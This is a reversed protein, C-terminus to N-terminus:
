KEDAFEYRMLELVEAIRNDRTIGTLHLRGRWKDAITTDDIQIMLIRRPRGFENQLELATDREWNCYPSSASEKSWLSLFTDSKAIEEKLRPKIKDHVGLHSEDRRVLRGTRALLLEIHDAEEVNEHAYSLFYTHVGSLAEGFDVIHAATPHAADSGALEMLKNRVRPNNFYLTEYKNKYLDAASGAFSPVTVVPKALALAYEGCRATGRRGGLLITFDSALIAGIRPALRADPLLSNEGQELYPVQKVRIHEDNQFPDGGALTRHVEIRLQSGRHKAVSRLGEVVDVDASKPNNDHVVPIYGRMGLEAGLQRCLHAFAETQSGGSRDSGFIAVRM